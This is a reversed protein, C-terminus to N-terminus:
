CFEALCDLPQEIPKWLCGLKATENSAVYTPHIHTWSYGAVQVKLLIVLIKETCKKHQSMRQIREVRFPYRLIVWCLFNVRYYFSLGSVKRRDRDPAWDRLQAIGTWLEVRIRLVDGTKTYEHLLILVSLAIWSVSSFFYASAATAYSTVHFRSQRMPSSLIPQPPTKCGPTLQMWLPHYM